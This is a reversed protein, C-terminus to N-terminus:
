RKKSETEYLSDYERGGESKQRFRSMQLASVDHCISCYAKNHRHVDYFSIIPVNNVLGGKKLKMRIQVCFRWGWDLSTSRISPCIISALIKCITPALRASTVTNM